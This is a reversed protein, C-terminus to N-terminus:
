LFTTTISILLRVFFVLFIRVLLTKALDEDCDIEELLTQLQLEDARDIGDAIKAKKIGLLQRLARGEAGSLVLARGAAGEAAGEGAGHLAVKSMLPCIKLVKVRM